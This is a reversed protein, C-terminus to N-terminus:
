SKIIRLDKKYYAVKVYKSEPLEHKIKLLYKKIFNFASDTYIRKPKGIFIKRIEELSYVSKLWDLQEISGYMLVQHIIYDKDSTVDLSSINRSWLIGQFDSPIAYNSQHNIM